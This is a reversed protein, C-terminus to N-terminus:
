PNPTFLRALGNGLRIPLPRVCREWASAYASEMRLCGGTLLRAVCQVLACHGTAKTVTAALSSLSVVRVLGASSNAVLAERHMM